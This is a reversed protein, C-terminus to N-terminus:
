RTSGRALAEPVCSSSIRQKRIEAQLWEMSESAEVNTQQRLSWIHERESIVTEVKSHKARSRSAVDKQREAAIRLAEEYAERRKADLRVATSRAEDQIQTRRTIGREVRQHEDREKVLLRAQVAQELEQQNGAVRTFRQETASRKTDLTVSHAQHQEQLTASRRAEVERLCQEEHFGHSYENVQRALAKTLWARRRASASAM